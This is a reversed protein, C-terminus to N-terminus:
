LLGTLKGLSQGKILGWGANVKRRRRRFDCLKTSTSDHDNIHIKAKQHQNSNVPQM